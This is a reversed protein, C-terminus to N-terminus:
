PRVQDRRKSRHRGLPWNPDNAHHTADTNGNQDTGSIDTPASHSHCNGDGCDRNHGRM